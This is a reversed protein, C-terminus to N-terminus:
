WMTAKATSNWLRTLLKWWAVLNSDVASTTSTLAATLMFVFAMLYILKKFM